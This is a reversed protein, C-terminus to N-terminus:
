SLAGAQAAGDLGARVKGDPVVRVDDLAELYVVALQDTEREAIEQEVLVVVRRLEAHQQVDPHVALVKVPGLDHRQVDVAVHRRRRGARHAVGHQVPQGAQRRGIANAEPRCQRGPLVRRRM